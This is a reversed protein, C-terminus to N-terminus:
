IIQLDRYKGDHELLAIGLSHVLYIYNVKNSLNSSNLHEYFDWVISESWPLSSYTTKQETERVMIQDGKLALIM